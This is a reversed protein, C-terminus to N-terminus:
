KKLTIKLSTIENSKLLLKGVVAGLIKRLNAESHILIQDMTNRGPRFGCQGDELKSEM